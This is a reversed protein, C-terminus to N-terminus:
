VLVKAGQHSSSVWFLGQHHSLNFAPPSPSSLSHSSQIANGFPNIFVFNYYVDMCVLHLVCFLFSFGIQSNSSSREQSKLIWLMKISQQFNQWLFSTGSIIMVGWCKGWLQPLKRGFQQQLKPIFELLNDNWPRKSHSNQYTMYGNHSIQGLKLNCKQTCKFKQPLSLPSYLNM